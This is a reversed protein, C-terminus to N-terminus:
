CYNYLIGSPFGDPLKELHASCCMPINNTNTYMPFRLFAFSPVFKLVCKYLIPFGYPYIQLNEAPGNIIYLSFYIHNSQSKVVKSCDLSTHLMCTHEVKGEGPVKQYHRLNGFCSVNFDNLKMTPTAERTGDVNDNVHYLSVSVTLDFGTKYYM